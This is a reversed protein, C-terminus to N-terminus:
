CCCRKMQTRQLDQSGSLPRSSAQRLLLASLSIRSCPPNQSKQSAGPLGRSGGSGGLIWGSCFWGVRHLAECWTLPISKILSWYQDRASRRRAPDVQAMSTSPCLRRGGDFTPPRHWSNQTTTPVTSEPTLEQVVRLGM